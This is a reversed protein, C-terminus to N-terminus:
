SISPATTRRTTPLSRTRARANSASPRKPKDSTTKRKRRLRKQRKRRSARSSPQLAPRSGKLESLIPKLAEETKATGDELIHKILPHDSNLVLSFSDPMQAYFGMGQQFKSMEKMRRMYENQTIVVPQNMEGLPQVDVMFEAKEIKPMQSHFTETLIDKQDTGLETKPADEKAIIRDIVDSDVRVFRSKEFKQELM